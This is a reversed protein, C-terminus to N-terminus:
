TRSNCAMKRGFKLQSSLLCNIVIVVLVTPLHLFSFIYMSRLNHRRSPSKSHVTYQVDTLRESLDLAAM